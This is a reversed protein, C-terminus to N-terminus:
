TMASHCYHVDPEERARVEKCRMPWTRHKHNHPLITATYNNHTLSCYDLAFEYLGVPGCVSREVPIASRFSRHILNESQSALTVYLLM